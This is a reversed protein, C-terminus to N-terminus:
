ETKDLSLKKKETRVLGPFGGAWGGGGRFDRPRGRFQNYISQIMILSQKDCQNQKNM